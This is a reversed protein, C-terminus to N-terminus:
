KQFSGRINIYICYYTGMTQEFDDPKKETYFFTM